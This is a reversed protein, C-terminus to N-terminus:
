RERATENTPRLQALLTRVDWGHFPTGSMAASSNSTTTTVSETAAQAWTWEGPTPGFAAITLGAAIVLAAASLWASTAPRRRGIVLILGGLVLTALTVQVIATMASTIFDSM